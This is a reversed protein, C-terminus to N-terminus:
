WEYVKGVELPLVNELGLDSIQAVILDRYMPKLNVIYVPCGPRTCKELEAALRKPTLHHSIHALNELEDPFACELLVASISAAGNVLLWFDDMEATDGSMAVTAEGSTITLGVSPVKHNVDVAKLAL